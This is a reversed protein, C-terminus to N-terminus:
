LSDRLDIIDQLQQAIQPKLQELMILSMEDNGEVKTIL